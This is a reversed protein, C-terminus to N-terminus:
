EVRNEGEEADFEALFAEIDRYRGAEIDLQGMELIAALAARQEDAETDM